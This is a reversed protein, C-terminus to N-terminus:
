KRGFMKGLASQGGTAPPAADAKEGPGGGKVPETKQLVASITGKMVRVRVGEAIEVTVEEGEAKTVTGVIGGGTGVRPRAPDRPRAAVRRGAARGAM